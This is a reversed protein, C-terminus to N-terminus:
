RAALREDAHRANAQQWGVKVAEARCRRVERKGLPDVSSAEGCVEAAAIRLRRQLQDQGAKSSLDLDRTQVTASVTAGPMAAHATTPITLVLAGASAAISVLASAFSSRTTM